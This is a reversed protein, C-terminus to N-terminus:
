QTKPIRFTLITCMAVSRLFQTNSSPSPSQSSKSNNDGAPDGALSNSDSAILAETNVRASPNLLAWQPGCSVTHVYGVDNNFFM